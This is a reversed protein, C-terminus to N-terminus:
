HTWNGSHTNTTFHLRMDLDTEDTDPEFRFTSRVIVMSGPETGALSFETQGTYHYCKKKSADMPTPQHNYLGDSAVQPMVLEWVGEEIEQTTNLVGVTYYDTTYPVKVM